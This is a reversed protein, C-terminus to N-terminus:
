LLAWWAVLVVVVFTLCFTWLWMNGPLHRSVLSPAIQKYPNARGELVEALADGLQLLDPIKNRNANLQAVYIFLEKGRIQIDVYGKMACLIDCLQPTLAAQVVEVKSASTHLKYFKRMANGHLSIKYVEKNPAGPASAPLKAQAGKKTLADLINGHVGRLLIHPEEMELSMHLLSMWERRGGGTESSAYIQFDVTAIMFPRKAYVGEITDSLNERGFSNYIGTQKLTGAESRFPTFHFGNAKAFLQAGVIAENENNWKWYLAIALYLTFVGVFILWWNYGEPTLPTGGFPTSRHFIKYLFYGFLGVTILTFIIFLYRRDPRRMVAKRDEDDIRTKKGLRKLEYRAVSSANIIEEQM